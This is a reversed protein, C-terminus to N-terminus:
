PADEATRCSEEKCTRLADLRGALEEKLAPDADRYVNQLQYPDADLDYLEKEGGDYEVYSTDETILGAYAPRRMKHSPRNEILGATRWPPTAGDLLPTFSRGDVFGPAQTGALEAFTPAVDTNLVLEQRQGQPVGPGRVILPVRVDEVYPTGKGPTDELAGLRHEGIHHGNDTWFVVYTNELRGTDSLANVLQGM